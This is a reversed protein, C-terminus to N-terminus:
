NSQGTQCENKKVSPPLIAFDAGAHADTASLADDRREKGSRINRAVTPELLASTSAPLSIIASRSKIGKDKRPVM